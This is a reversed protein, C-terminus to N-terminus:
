TVATKVADFEERGLNFLNNAPSVDDFTTRLSHKQVDSFRGGCLVSYTHLLRYVITLMLSYVGVSPNAVLRVVNEQFEVDRENEGDAGFPVPEVLASILADLLSSAESATDGQLAEMATPSTSVSAPDSLM